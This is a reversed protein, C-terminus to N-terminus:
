FERQGIDLIAAIQSDIRNLLEEFLAFDIASKESNIGTTGDSRFRGTDGIGV